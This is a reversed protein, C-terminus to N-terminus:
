RFIRFNHRIRGVYQGAAFVSLAFAGVREALEVNTLRANEQLSKIIAKDARDLPM